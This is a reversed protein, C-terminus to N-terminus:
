LGRSPARLHVNTLSEARSISKQDCKVMSQLIIIWKRAKRTITHFDPAKNKKHGLRWLRKLNNKARIICLQRPSSGCWMTCLGSKCLLLAKSLSLLVPERVRQPDPYDNSDGASVFPGFDWRGRMGNKFSYQVCVTSHKRTPSYSHMSECASTHHNQM